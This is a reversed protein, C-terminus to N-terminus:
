KRYNGLAPFAIRLIELSIEDINSIILAEVHYHPRNTTQTTPKPAGVEVDKGWKPSKTMKWIEVM